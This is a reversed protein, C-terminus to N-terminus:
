IFKFDINEVFDQPKNIQHYSHGSYEIYIDAPSAIMECIKGSELDDDLIIDEIELFDTENLRNKLIDSLNRLLQIKIPEFIKLKKSYFNLHNSEKTNKIIFDEIKMGPPIFDNFNEITKLHKM